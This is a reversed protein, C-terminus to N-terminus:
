DKRDAPFETRRKAKDAGEVSIIEVTPKALMVRMVPVLPLLSQTEYWSHDTIKLHDAAVFGRGLTADVGLWQGDIWVETWMHYALVPRQDIVAYVLGL